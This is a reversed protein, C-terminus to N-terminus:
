NWWRPYAPDPRTQQAAEALQDAVEDTDVRGLVVLRLAERFGDDWADREVKDVHRHYLYRGAIVGTLLHMATTWLALWTM